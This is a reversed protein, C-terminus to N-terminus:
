DADNALRPFDLNKNAGGHLSAIQIRVADCEGKISLLKEYETLDTRRATFAIRESLGGLLPAVKRLLMSSTLPISIRGSAGINARQYANVEDQPENGRRKMEWAEENTLAVM